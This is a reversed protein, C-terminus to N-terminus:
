TQEIGQSHRRHDREFPTDIAIRKGGFGNLTEIAIM